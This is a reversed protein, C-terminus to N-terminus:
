LLTGCMQKDDEEFESMQDVEDVSFDGCNTCPTEMDRDARERFVHHEQSPYLWLQDFVSDLGYHSIQIILGTIKDVASCSEVNYKRLVLHM